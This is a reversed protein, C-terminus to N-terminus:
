CVRTCRPSYGVGVAWIETRSTVAPFHQRGRKGAAEDEGGARVRERGGSTSPPKRESGPSPPVRMHTFSRADFTAAPRTVAWEQGVAGPKPGSWHLGPLKTRPGVHSRFSSTQPPETGGQFSHSDPAEFRKRDSTIHDDEVTCLRRGRNLCAEPTFNACPRRRWSPIVRRFLGRKRRLSDRPLYFGSTWM